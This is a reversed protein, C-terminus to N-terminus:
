SGRRQPMPAMVLSPIGAAPNVAFAIIGWAYPDSVNFTFDESMTVTGSGPETSSTGASYNSISEQEWRMTQGAGAVVTCSSNGGNTTFGGAVDIVLQDASSTVNVTATYTAANGSGTATVSTETPNAQLVDTLSVGGVCLETQTGSVAGYLTQNAATPALLTAVAVRHFASASLTSGKQTLATGGSGGWKISSYTAPTGDGWTMGAVLLRDSGAIVWASTTVSTASAAKASNANDFIPM